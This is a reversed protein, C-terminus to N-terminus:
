AVLRSAFTYSLVLSCLLHDESVTQTLSIVLINYFFLSVVMHKALPNNSDELITGRITFVLNFGIWLFFQSLNSCVSDVGEFEM